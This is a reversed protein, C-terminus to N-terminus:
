RECHPPITPPGALIMDAITMKVRPYLQRRYELLEEEVRALEALLSTREVSPTKLGTKEREDVLEQCRFCGPFKLVQGDPRRMRAPVGHTRCVLLRHAYLQCLGDENLPCMVQPREDRLEALRCKDRYETAWQRIKEQQEESMTKLGRWLYAWEAYTHHQFYSDCCNDPCGACSFNLAGAVKNYDAEMQAYIGAIREALHEPLVLEKM